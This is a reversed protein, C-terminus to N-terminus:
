PRRGIGGVESAGLSVIGFRTGTAPHPHLRAKSAIRPQFHGSPTPTRQHPFPRPRAEWFSSMRIRRVPPSSKHKRAPSIAPHSRNRKETTTSREAIRRGRTQRAERCFCLLLLTCFLLVSTVRACVTRLPPKLATPPHLYVNSKLVIGHARDRHWDEKSVLRHM